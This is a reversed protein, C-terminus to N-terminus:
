VRTRLLNITIKSEGKTKFAAKQKLFVNMQFSVGPSIVTRCTVPRLLTSQLGPKIHGGWQSSWDFLALIHNGRAGNADNPAYKHSRSYEVM